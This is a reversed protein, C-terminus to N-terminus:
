LTLSGGDIGTELFQIECQIQLPMQTFLHRLSKPLDSYEMLIM